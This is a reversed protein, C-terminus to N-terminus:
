APPPPPTPNHDHLAPHLCTATVAHVLAAPWPLQIPSPLGTFRAAWPGHPPPPDLPGHPLRDSDRPYFRTAQMDVALDGGLELRRRFWPPWGATAPFAEDAAHVELRLEIHDEALAM